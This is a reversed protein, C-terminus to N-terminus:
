LDGEDDLGRDHDDNHFVSERAKQALLAADTAYAWGSLEERGFVEMLTLPAPGLLADAVGRAYGQIAGDAAFDASPSRANVKDGVARLLGALATLVATTDIDGVYGHRLRKDLMGTAEYLRTTDTM